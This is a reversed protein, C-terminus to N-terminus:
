VGCGVGLVQVVERGQIEFVTTFIGEYYDNAVVLELVGDGNLDLTALLRNTSTIMTDSSETFYEELVPITQVTGGVLKRLVVFSYDGASAYINVGANAQAHRTASILVEDEGDGELDVRVIREIRVEPNALGRGAIWERMAAVYTPNAPDLLEVPRPLPNWGARVAIPRYPTLEREPLEVFPTEACPGYELPYQTASSGRVTDIAGALGYLTYAAETVGAAIEAGKRWGGAWGGILWADTFGADLFVAELTGGAVDGRQATPSFLGEWTRPGIVGDVDLGNLRQFRRVAADTKPGFVGDAAEIEAYGLGLLAAQAVRVDDGELRPSQLALPQAPAPPATPGATPVAVAQTPVPSPAAITPAAAATASPLAPVATPPPATTPSPAIAAPATTGTAAPGVTAAQPPAGSCGALMLAFLVASLVKPRQGKAKQM